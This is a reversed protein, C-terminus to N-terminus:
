VAVCIGHGVGCLGNGDFDVANGERGCDARGRRQERRLTGGHDGGEGGDGGGRRRQFDCLGDSAPYVSLPNKESTYNILTLCSRM